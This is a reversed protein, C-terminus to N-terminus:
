SRVEDETVLFNKLVQARNGTVSVETAGFFRPHGDPRTGDVNAAPYVYIVGDKFTQMAWRRTATYFFETKAVENWGDVLKKAAV